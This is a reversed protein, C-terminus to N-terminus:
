GDMELDWKRKLGVELVDWVFEIVISFALGVMKDAASRGVRLGCFGREVSRGRVSGGGSRSGKSM